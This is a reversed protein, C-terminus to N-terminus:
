LRPHEAPAHPPRPHAFPPPRLRHIEASAPDAEVELLCEAPRYPHDVIGGHLRQAAVLAAAHQEEPEAGAEPGRQDDVAHELRHLERVQRVLFTLAVLVIDALGAQLAGALLFPAPVHEIHDVTETLRQVDVIHYEAAAVGLQHALQGLADAKAGVGVGEDAAEPGHCVGAGVG